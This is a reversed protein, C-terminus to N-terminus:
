KPRQQVLKEMAKAEAKPYSEWDVGEAKRNTKTDTIVVRKAIMPIFPILSLDAIGHETKYRGM